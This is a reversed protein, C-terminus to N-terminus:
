RVATDLISNWGVADPCVHLMGTVSGACRGAKEKEM